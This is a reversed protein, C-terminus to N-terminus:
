MLGPAALVVVAGEELSDATEPSIRYRAADASVGTRLMFPVDPFQGSVDVLQWEGRDKARGGGDADRPPHIHPYDAPNIQAFSLFNGHEDTPLSPRRNLPSRYAAGTVIAQQM